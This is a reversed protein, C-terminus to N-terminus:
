DNAVQKDQKRLIRELKSINGGSNSRNIPDEGCCLKCERLGRREAMDVTTERPEVFATGEEQHDTICDREQHYVSARCGVTYVTM